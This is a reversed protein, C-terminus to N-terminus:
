GAQCNDLRAGSLEVAGHLNSVGLANLPRRHLTAGVRRNVAPHEALISSSGPFAACPLNYGARAGSRMQPATREAAPAPSRGAPLGRHTEPDCGLLLPASRPNSEVM